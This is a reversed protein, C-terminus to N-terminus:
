SKQSSTPSYGGAPLDEEAAPDSDQAEGSGAVGATAKTMAALGEGIMTSIAAALQGYISIPIEHIKVSNNFLQSGQEDVVSHRILDFMKQKQKDESAKALRANEEGDETKEFVGLSIFEIVDGASPPILFVVGTQQNKRTGELVVERFEDGGTFLESATLVNSTPEQAPVAVPAPTPRSSPKSSVKKSRKKM